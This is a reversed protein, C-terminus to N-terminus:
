NVKHGMDTICHWFWCLSSTPTSPNAAVRWKGNGIYLVHKCKQGCDNELRPAKIRFVMIFNEVGSFSKNSGSSQVKGSVVNKSRFKAWSYFILKRKHEYCNQLAHWTVWCAPSDSWLQVHQEVLKDFCKNCIASEGRTGKAYNQRSQSLHGILTKFVRLTPKTKSLANPSYNGRPSVWLM